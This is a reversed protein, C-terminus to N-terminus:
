VEKYDKDFEQQLVQYANLMEKAIITFIPDVENAISDELTAVFDNKNIRVVQLGHEREDETLNINSIDPKKNTEVKYYVIKCIKNKGSNRHNFSYTETEYFKEIKDADTLVIGTEEEVERKLALLLDEGQEVHGGPLMFGYDIKDLLLDNGDFVFAKVRTVSGSMQEPTLNHPNIFEKKM